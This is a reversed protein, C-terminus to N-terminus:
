HCIRRPFDIRGVGSSIRGPHHNIAHIVGPRNRIWVIGALRDLIGKEIREVALETVFIRIHWPHSRVQISRDYWGCAEHSGPVVIRVAGIRIERRRDRADGTINSSRPHARGTMGECDIGQAVLLYVVISVRSGRGLRSREVLLLDGSVVTKTTRRSRDRDTPFCRVHASPTVRRNRYSHRGAHWGARNLLLRQVSAWAATRGWEGVGQATLQGNSGGM